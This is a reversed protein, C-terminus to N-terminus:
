ERATAMALASIFGVEPCPFPDVLGSRHIPSSRLRSVKTTPGGRPLTATQAKLQVRLTSIAHLVKDRQNTLMQVQENLQDTSAVLKTLRQRTKATTAIESLMAVPPIM